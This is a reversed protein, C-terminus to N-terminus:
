WGREKQRGRHNRGKRATDGPPVTKTRETSGKEGAEDGNKGSPM